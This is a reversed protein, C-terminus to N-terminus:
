RRVLIEFAHLEERHLQFAQYLKERGYRVDPTWRFSWTENSLTLPIKAGAPTNSALRVVTTREQASTWERQKPSELNAVEELWVSDSYVKCRHWNNKDFPDMGQPVKVWITAEEGPELIGNGNGTGETVTVEM